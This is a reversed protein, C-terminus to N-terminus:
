LVIAFISLYYNHLNQKNLSDSDIIKITKQLNQDEIINIFSIGYPKIKQLSFHNLEFVLKWYFFLYNQM